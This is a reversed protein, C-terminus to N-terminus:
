DEEFPPLDAADETMWRYLEEQVAWAFEEIAAREDPVPEGSMLRVDYSWDWDMWVIRLKISGDPHRWWAAVSITTLQVSVSPVVCRRLGRADFRPVGKFRYTSSAAM